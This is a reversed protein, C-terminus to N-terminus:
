LDQFTKLLRDWGFWFIGLNTGYDLHHQLHLRKAKWFWDFAELWHGRVHTAEHIADNLYAIVATEALFVLYAWTPVHLWHLVLGVAVVVIAVFPAFLLVGSHAGASRYTKSEIDEPPYKVEHHTKHAQYLRGALPNHLFRHVVWGVLGGFIFTGILVALLELLFVVAGM